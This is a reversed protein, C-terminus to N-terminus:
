THRFNTRGRRYARRNALQQAVTAWRCNAPTYNKNNNIRDISTLPPREGMDKLFAVFSKRWQRCVTIGRGIYDPNTDVTGNDCRRLMHQWSSYTPTGSMGHIRRLRGVFKAKRCGCSTTGHPKLCDTRVTFMHGCKCRVQAHRKSDKKCPALVRTVVLWSFVDGKKM